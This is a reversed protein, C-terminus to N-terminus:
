SAPVVYPGLAKNCAGNSCSLMVVTGGFPTPVDSLVTYSPGITESMMQGCYPCNFATLKLGM